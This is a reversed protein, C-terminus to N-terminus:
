RTLQYCNLATWHLICLSFICCFHQQRLRKRYRKRSRKSFIVVNHISGFTIKWLCHKRLQQWFSGLCNWQIGICYKKNIIIRNHAWKVERQRLNNNNQWSNTHIWFNLRPFLKILKRWIQSVICWWM